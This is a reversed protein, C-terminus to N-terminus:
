EGSTPPQQDTGSVWITKPEDSYADGIGAAACAKCICRGRGPEGPVPVSGGIEHGGFMEGCTPCPIWFYGFLNAFTRNVARNTTGRLVSRVVTRSQEVRRTHRRTALVCTLAVLSMTIAIINLISM